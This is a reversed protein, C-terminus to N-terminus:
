PVFTSGKKSNDLNKKIKKLKKKERWYSKSHVVNSDNYIRSYDLIKM